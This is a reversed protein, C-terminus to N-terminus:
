NRRLATLASQELGAEKATKERTKKVPREGKSPTEIDLYGKKYPCDYQISGHQELM